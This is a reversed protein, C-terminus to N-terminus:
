KETFVPNCFFVQSMVLKTNSLPLSVQEEHILKCTPLPLLDTRDRILWSFIFPKISSAFNLYGKVCPYKTKDLDIWLHTPSVFVCALEKGVSNHQNLWAVNRSASLAFYDKEYRNSITMQRSIENMYAYQYPYMTINDAAFILATVILALALLKRSLYYLGSFGVIFILPFIFLIQRLENYLGAKQVILFILVTIITLVLGILNLLSSDSPYGARKKISQYLVFPTAIAGVIVFVPLKILLWAPIYFINFQKPAILRGATLTDGDWPHHSMYAIANLFEFPNHWYVPSLVFLGLTFPIVFALIYGPTLIRKIQCRGMFLYVLLFVAYEIFIMVGSVRISLLWATCLGFIAFQFTIQKKSLLFGSHWLQLINLYISTSLIWVFLFPIDKVNFLSHGLLYPWMLYVIMGLSAMSSNATLRCLISKVSLGSLAFAGFVAIHAFLIESPTNSLSFFHSNFFIAIKAITNSILHFGIGYYRDHYNLLQQYEIFSGSLLGKVAQINIGLTQYETLEDASIGAHLCAWIGVPIYFAFFIRELIKL